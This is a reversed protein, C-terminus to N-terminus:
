CLHWQMHLKHQLITIFLKPCLKCILCKKRTQIQVQKELNGIDNLTSLNKLLTVLCEKVVTGLGLPCPAQFYQPVSSIRLVKLLM